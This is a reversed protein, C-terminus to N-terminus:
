DHLYGREVESWADEPSHRLVNWIDHDNLVQWLIASRQAQSINTTKLRERLKTQLEIMADLAPYRTEIEQRIFRSMAPSDGDTSIALVYRRGSTIAPIVVDGKEGDANNFLIQKKRCLHGIRNNQLTDSLAAIVLFAHGIINEIVDDAVTSVDLEQVHVALDTCKKSFSR